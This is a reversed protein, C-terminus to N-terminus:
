PVLRKQLSYRRFGPPFGELVGFVTYGHREYFPLAQFEFTDLYSGVCGQEVAFQEASHLLQSGLGQGRLGEPLWFNEIYLWSWRLQAELGGLAVGAEDRVFVALPRAPAPGTHQENFERLGKWIASHIDTESPDPELSLTHM